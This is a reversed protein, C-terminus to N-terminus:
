ELVVLEGDQVQWLMFNRIADGKSNISYIGSLGDENQVTYLYDRICDSDAGNCFSLADYLVMYTDYGLAGYMEEPMAEGFYTEYDALYTQMSESDKDYKYTVMMLDEAADGMLFKVVQRSFFAENGILQTEIGLEKAQKVLLSASVPSQVLLLIADPNDENIKSLQTKVDTDGTNFAEVGTITGDFVSEFSEKWGVAYETNEVVIGITEYGNQKIIAATKDAFLDASSSIRFVYDGADSVSPTSVVPSILITDQEETLPAIALTSGGCVGSVVIDVEDVNLLKTAATVAETPICQGDEYIVTIEKGDIMSNQSNALEFSNKVYVGPNAVPGTLPGVFGIKIENDKPMFYFLAGIIVVLVLIVFITNNKKM